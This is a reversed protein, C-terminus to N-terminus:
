STCKVNSDKRGREKGRGEWIGTIFLLLTLVNLAEGILGPSLKKSEERTSSRM